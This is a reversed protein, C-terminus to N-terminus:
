NVLNHEAHKAAITAALDDLARFDAERSFGKCLVPELIEVKLDPILRGIQEIAKSSWGYSGIISAFKLKPRLANALYAAYVVNPHPGVHVTPTGIVITAADVLTIALKGIDTAALNFQYVTVGREALASVLYEVMKQTSGHMSIYPLVVVNKPEESVWDQYADLIFAPRDYIPGHSPAILDIRRGGVKELNKRIIKRFPMMIEAYYRKAAEYVRAEDSVYLDTTALHSGFFDCSFLVHEEQLYTVMTEPWHVWPTHIFELTKDGLSLTEGDDVTIFREEPILLLDILMGKGKPTTIVKANEYKELVYPIAGSHDQEAHHAVVYDIHPVSELQFMLVDTMSPDVTDLLATKQNGQILYANYSTGDPLPILSDFLRRDWDVAGMWYIGERVKRAKMVNAEKAGIIKVEIGAVTRCL